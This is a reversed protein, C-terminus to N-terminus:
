GLNERFFRLVRDWADQAAVPDYVDPRSDNFFAHGVGPYIHFEAQKGASRIDQELKRAVEPTVFPDKEAFLGLVPAQLGSFDPTVKPHIGYFDVCAGISSNKCAAALALQGGMCFGVVGVKKPSVGELGLLYSVASSLDAIARGINLAMLLREAEDPRTTTEGHYLDPALAFFGEAAFRDAM